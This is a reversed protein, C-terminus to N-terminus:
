SAVPFREIARTVPARLRRVAPGDRRLDPRNTAILRLMAAASERVLPALLEFPMGGTLSLHEAAPLSLDLVASSGTATRNAAEVDLVIEGGAPVSVGALEVDVTAIRSDLRVPPDLRLVQEVARGALDPDACLQRWQEPRDLLAHVVNGVADVTVEVGVMSALVGTLVRARDARASRAFLSFLGRVADLLARATPLRPPCLLADLTPAAASCLRYLEGQRITPVGCLEAVVGAMLPRALQTVLDFQPGLRDLTEQGRRSTVPAASALDLLGPPRRPGADLGLAQRQKLEPTVVRSVLQPNALITRGLDFEGTVWAGTRSRHPWGLEALRAAVALRDENEARLLM